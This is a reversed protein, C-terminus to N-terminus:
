RKDDTFGWSAVSYGAVITGWFVVLDIAFWLWGAWLRDQGFLVRMLLPSTSLSRGLGDAFTHTLPDPRTVFYALFGAVLVAGVLAVGVSGVLKRM